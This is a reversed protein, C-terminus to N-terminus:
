APSISWASCWKRGISSRALVTYVSATEGVPLVEPNALNIAGGSAAVGPDKTCIRSSLITNGNFCKICSNRTKLLSPSTAFMRLAPCIDPLANLLAIAVFSRNVFSLSRQAKRSYLNRIPPQSFSAYTGTIAPPCTQREEQWAKGYQHTLVRQM